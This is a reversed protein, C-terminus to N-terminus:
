TQAQIYINEKYKRLNKKKKSNQKKEKREGSMM